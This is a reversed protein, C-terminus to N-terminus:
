IKLIKKYGATEPHHLSTNVVTIGTVYPHTRTPADDVGLTRVYWNEPTDPHIRKIRIYLKGEGGSFCVCRDCQMCVCVCECVPEYIVTSLRGMNMM